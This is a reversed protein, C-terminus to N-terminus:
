ASPQVQTSPPIKQLTPYCVLRDRWSVESFEYRYMSVLLLIPEIIYSVIYSFPALFWVSPTLVTTAVFERVLLCGIAIIIMLLYVIHISTAAVYIVYALILPLALRWVSYAISKLPMMEHLPYLTRILNNIHSDPRKRVTIGLDPNSIIYSYGNRESFIEALTIEPLVHNKVSDFGGINRLSESQVLWFKGSVPNDIRSMQLQQKGISPELLSAAVDISYRQPWVSLMDLKQAEVYDILKTITDVQLDVDVDCFILWKGSAEESLRQLANNKGNWDTRPESGSIFRVGDHAFNKIVEPTKDSSCDDLVIIELKEYNSNISQQLCKSLNIDENRAPILLSVAPQAETTLMPAPQYHFITKARLAKFLGALQLYIFIAPILILFNDPLMYLFQSGLIACIVILNIIFISQLQETKQQASINSFRRVELLNFILFLGFLNSYSFYLTLGIIILSLLIKHPKDRKYQVVWVLFFIVPLIVSVLYNYQAWM